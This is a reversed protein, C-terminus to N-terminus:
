GYMWRIKGNCKVLAILGRYVSSDSRYQGTIRFYLWLWLCLTHLLVNQITFTKREVCSIWPWQNRLGEWGGPPPWRREQSLTGPWGGRQSGRYSQPSYSWPLQWSSSRAPWTWTTQWAPGGDRGAASLPLFPWCVGSRAWARLRCSPHTCKRTKQQKSWSQNFSRFSFTSNDNGPRGNTTTTTKSLAPFYPGCSMLVLSVSSVTVMYSPSHLERISSVLIFTNM